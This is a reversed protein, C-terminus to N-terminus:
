CSSLRGASPFQFLLLRHCASANFVCNSSTYCQSFPLIQLILYHSYYGDHYCHHSCPSCNELQSWSNVSLFLSAWPQTVKEARQWLTIWVKIILVNWLVDCLDIINITNLNSKSAALVKSSKILCVTDSILHHVGHVSLDVQIIDRCIKYAPAHQSLGELNFSWKLNQLCFIGCKTHQELSNVSYGSPKRSNGLEM